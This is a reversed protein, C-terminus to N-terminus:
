FGNSLKTLESKLHHGITTRSGPIQDIGKILILQNITSQHNGGIVGDSGPWFYTSSKLGSKHVTNWMPESGWWRPDAKATENRLSFKGIKSDYM